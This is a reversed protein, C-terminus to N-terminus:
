KAERYKGEDTDLIRKLNKFLYKRRERDKEKMLRKEINILNRRKKIM